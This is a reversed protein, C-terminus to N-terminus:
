PLIDATFLARAHVGHCHFNGSIEAEHPQHNHKSDNRDNRGVESWVAPESTQPYPLKDDGADPASKVEPPRNAYHHTTNSSFFICHSLQLGSGSKAASKEAAALLQAMMKIDIPRISLGGRLLNTILGRRM